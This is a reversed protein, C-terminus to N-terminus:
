ERAASTIESPSIGVRAGGEGRDPYRTVKGGAKKKKVPYLGDDKPTQFKEGFPNDTKSGL